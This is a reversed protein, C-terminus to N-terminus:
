VSGAKLSLSIKSVTFSNLACKDCMINIPNVRCIFLFINCINVAKNWLMAMSKIYSLELISSIREWQWKDMTHSKHHVFSVLMKLWTNRNETLIIGGSGKMNNLRGDASCLGLLPCCRKIFMERNGLQSKPNLPLM